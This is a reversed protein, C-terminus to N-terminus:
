SFIIGLIVGIGGIELCVMFDTINDHRDIWKFFPTMIGMENYFNEINNVTNMENTKM